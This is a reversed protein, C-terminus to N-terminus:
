STPWFKLKGLKASFTKFMSVSGETQPKHPSQHPLQQAAAKALDGERGPAPSPLLKIDPELPKWVISGSPLWVEKLPAWSVSKAKNSPTAVAAKALYGEQGPPPSPLLKIDPELPKWVISGSSLHVEKLPAWSVSKVKNSPIGVGPHSESAGSYDPSPSQSQPPTRWETDSDSDPSPLQSQRATWWETDSDSDSEDYLNGRPARIPVPTTLVFNFLPLILLICALIKFRM